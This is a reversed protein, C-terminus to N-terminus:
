IGWANEGWCVKTEGGLQCVLSILSLVQLFMLVYKLVSISKGAAGATFSIPRAKLINTLKVGLQHGQSFTAM